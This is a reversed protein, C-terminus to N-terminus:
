NHGAKVKLKLCERIEALAIWQHTITLFTDMDTRILSIVTLSITDARVTIAGESIEVM